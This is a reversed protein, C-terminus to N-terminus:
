NVVYNKATINEKKGKIYSKIFIKKGSKLHRYHGKVSWSETLRRNKRTNVNSVILDPNSYTIIKLNNITITSKQKHNNESKIINKNSPKHAKKEITIETKDQAGIVHLYGFLGIYSTIANSIIKKKDNKDMHIFMVGSKLNDLESTYITGEEKPKLDATGSFYFTLKNNRVDQLYVQFDVKSDDLEKFYIYRNIGRSYVLEKIVGESLIGFVSIYEEGNKLTDIINKKAINDVIITDLKNIDQITKFREM